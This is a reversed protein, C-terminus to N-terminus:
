LQPAAEHSRPPPFTGGENEWREIWRSLIGGPERLRPRDSKVDTPPRNTSTQGTSHEARSRFISSAKTRM